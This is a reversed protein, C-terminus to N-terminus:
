CYRRPARRPGAAARRQARTWRPRHPYRWQYTDIWRGALKVYEDEVALVTSEVITPAIAASVPKTTVTVTGTTCIPV